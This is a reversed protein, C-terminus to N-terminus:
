RGTAHKPHGGRWGYYHLTLIIGGTHHVKCLNSRADRLPPLLYGLAGETADPAATADPANSANPADADLLSVWFSGGLSGGPLAGGAVSSSESSRRPSGLKFSNFSPRSIRRRSALMSWAKSAICAGQMTRKVKGYVQLIGAM